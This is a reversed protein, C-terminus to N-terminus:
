PMIRGISEVGIYVYVCGSEKLECILNKDLRHPNIQCYFPLQIRKRYKFLFETIWAKNTVFCDDLIGIYKPRYKTKAEELEEIVNDVSRSRVIRKGRKEHVFIPPLLLM